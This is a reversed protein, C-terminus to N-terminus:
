FRLTGKLIAHDPFPSEVSALNLYNVGPCPPERFDRGWVYVSPDHRTFDRDYSLDSVEVGKAAFHDYPFEYDPHEEFMSSGEPTHLVFGQNELMKRLIVLNWVPYESERHNNNFDGTLLVPGKIDKIWDMAWHFEQQRLRNKKELSKIPDLSKIRLGVISLLKGDCELDVRLNEPISDVGYCPTWFCDLISFCDKAFIIIDNGNVNESAACRYGERTMDEIFADRGESKTCFETLVVIDTGVIEERVFEPIRGAGNGGQQNINWELVTTKM